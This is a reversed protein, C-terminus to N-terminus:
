ELRRRREDVDTWYHPQEDRDSRIDNSGLISACCCDDPQLFCREHLNRSRIRNFISSALKLFRDNRPHLLFHPTSPILCDHDTPEFDDGSSPQVDDAPKVDDHRPELHPRLHLHADYYHSTPLEGHQERWPQVLDLHHARRCRDIVDNRSFDRCLNDTGALQVARLHEHRRGTPRQHLVDIHFTPHQSKHPRSLRVLRERPQESPRRGVTAYGVGLGVGLAVALAAIVVCAGAIIAWRSKWWPQEEEEAWFETENGFASGGASNRASPGDQGPRWQAGYASLPRTSLDVM